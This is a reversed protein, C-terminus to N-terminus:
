ILNATLQFYGPMSKSFCTWTLGKKTILYHYYFTDLNLTDLAGYLKKKSRLCSHSFLGSPWLFVVKLCFAVIVLLSKTNLTNLEASVQSIPWYKEERKIILVLWFEQKNEQDFICGFPSYVFYHFNTFTTFHIM